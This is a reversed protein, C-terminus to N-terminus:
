DDVETRSRSCKAEEWGSPRRWEVKEEELCIKESNSAATGQCLRKEQAAAAEGHLGEVSPPPADVIWRKRGHERRSATLSSCCVVSINTLVSVSTVDTM